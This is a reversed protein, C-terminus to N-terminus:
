NCTRASQATGRVSFGFHGLSIGEDGTFAGVRVRVPIETFSRTTGNGLCTDLFSFRVIAEGRPRVTLPASRYRLRDYPPAGMAYPAWQVRLGHVAQRASDPVGVLTQTVASWNAIEAYFGHRRPIGTTSAVTRFETNALATRETAHPENTAWQLGCACQLPPAHLYRFTIVLGATAGGGVLIVTSILLALARRSLQRRGAPRPGPEVERPVVATM